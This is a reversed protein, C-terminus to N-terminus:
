LQEEVNWRESEKERSQVQEAPEGLQLCCWSTTIRGRGRKKEARRRSNCMGAEV